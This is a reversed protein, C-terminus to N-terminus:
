CNGIRGFPQHCYFSNQFDRQMENILTLYDEIDPYLVKKWTNGKIDLEEHDYDDLLELGKSFLKLMGLGQKYMEQEMARTIIR